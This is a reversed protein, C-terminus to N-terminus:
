PSHVARAALVLLATLLIYAAIGLILASPHLLPALPHEKM